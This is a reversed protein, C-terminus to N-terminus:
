YKLESDPTLPSSLVPTQGTSNTSGVRTRMCCRTAGTGPFTGSSSGEELKGEKAHAWKDRCGPDPDNDPNGEM